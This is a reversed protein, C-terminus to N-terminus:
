FQYGCAGDCHPRDICRHEDAGSAVEGEQVSARSEVAGQIASALADLGELLSTFQDSASPIIM